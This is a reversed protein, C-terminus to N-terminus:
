TNCSVSLSHRVNVPAGDNKGPEFRAQQVVRLAEKDCGAGLGRMVKPERVRGQADVIFQVYVRGSVGAEAAAEPRAMQANLEQLSGLLKPPEDVVVHVSGADLSAEPPMSPGAEAPDDTGPPDIGSAREAAPRLSALKQAAYADDPRVALAQELAREAADEDGRRLAAEAQRRYEDYRM